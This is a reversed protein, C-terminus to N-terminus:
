PVLDVVAISRVRERPGDIFTFEIRDSGAVAREYRPLDWAEVAEGNIRSVLDGPHVGGSGGPYGPMVAAVKWYAPTRTFSLGTGRLPPVRLSDSPDHQFFVENDEQDFTVTFHILIAGGLGSLEDTVEAVPRPIDFSGIRVVDALRGVKPSRDGALTAIPPGNM